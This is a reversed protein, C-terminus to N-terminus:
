EKIYERSKKELKIDPCDKLDKIEKKLKEVEEILELVLLALPYLVVFQNKPFKIGRSGNAMNEFLVKSTYEEVKRKAKEIEESRDM